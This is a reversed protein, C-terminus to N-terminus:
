PATEASQDFENATRGEWRRVIAVVHGLTLPRDGGLVARLAEVAEDGLAALEDREELLREIRRALLLYSSSEVTNVARVIREADDPSLASCVYRSQGGIHERIPVSAHNTPHLDSPDIRWDSM